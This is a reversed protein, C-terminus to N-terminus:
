LRIPLNRAAKKWRRTLARMTRIDEVAVDRLAMEVGLREACANGAITVDGNAEARREWFMLRGILASGAAYFADRVAMADPERRMISSIRALM